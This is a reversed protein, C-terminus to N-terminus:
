MTTRRRRGSRRSKNGDRRRAPRAIGNVFIELALLQRKGHVVFKVFDPQKRHRLGGPVTKQGRRQHIGGKAPNLRAPARANHGDAALFDAVDMEPDSELGGALVHLGARDGVAQQMSRHGVDMGGKRAHARDEVPNLRFHQPPDAHRIVRGGGAVVASFKKFGDAIFKLREFPKIGDDIGVHQIRPKWGRGLGDRRNPPAQRLDQAGRRRRAAFSQDPGYRAHAAHARLHM